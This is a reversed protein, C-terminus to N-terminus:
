FGTNPFWRSFHNEDLRTLPITLPQPVGEKAWRELEDRHGLKGLVDFVNGPSGEPWGKMVQPDWIAIGPDGAALYGAAQNCLEKPKGTKWAIVMPYAKTKTGKTIRRYYEMDIKGPTKEFSTHYAFWTTALDDVLGKQIWNPLDLGWRQNDAEKAFTGLSIKYREKRGQKAATEDLLARVEMMFDTMIAARTAHIRPDDDEVAKADANHMAKFRECFADEWLMLPMGRNFLFGVGEPQLELTERFVEILHRRVEPNAYSMFFTPTGDRDFCRWEPHEYFFKSNFTEEYPMSGVWGAPRLMVHFEAGQAKAADRAVKLPNVGKKFLTELSRAYTAYAGSPFDVTGEGAYTGVKSPYCVLDAGTVQFWWKGIDTKEFGRFEEALEEATTPKFPWIWSHGDFTAISTRQQSQAQSAKVEADTLPVVKVYCVTAPLGPMPAIEVSQGHLNAVTLFCEQIVARRNKLLALNNAMRKFVLEDSLKAKIGNGGINFGGSTTALGVYVAHWGREALPLRVGPPNTGSYISLATGKMDATTFPIMKWKGKLRKGTILASAPEMKSLDTMVVAKAAQSFGRSDTAFFEAAPTAVTEAHAIGVFFVLLLVILRNM